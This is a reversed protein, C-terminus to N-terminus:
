RRDDATPDDDEALKLVDAFSYARPQGLVEPRDRSDPDEDEEPGRWSPFAM